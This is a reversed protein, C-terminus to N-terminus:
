TGEIIKWFTGDDVGPFPKNRDPKNQLNPNIGPPKNGTM